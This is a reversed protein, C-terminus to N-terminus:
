AQRGRSPYLELFGARYQNKAKFGFDLDNPDIRPRRAYAALLEATAPEVPLQAYEVQLLGWLAAGGLAEKRSLWWRLDAALSSPRHWCSRLEGMRRRVSRPPIWSSFRDALRQSPLQGIAGGGDVRSLLEEIAPVLLARLSAGDGPPDLRAALAVEVAEFLVPSAGLRGPRDTLFWQARARHGPLCVGEEGTAILPIDLFLRATNQAWAEATDAALPKFLNLLLAQRSARPDFKSPFRSLLGDGFLEFGALRTEVMQFSEPMRDIQDAANISLDIEFSAGGRGVALKELGSQFRQNAELSADSFVLGDIDSLFRINGEDRTWLFDGTSISPTLVIGTLPHLHEHALRLVEELLVALEQPYDFKECLERPRSM